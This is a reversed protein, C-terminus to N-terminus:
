VKIHKQKDCYITVAQRVFEAGGERIREYNIAFRADSVWMDALNRLFETDCKYFYQNIYAHYDGIAKQVGPNDPLLNAEKGVMRVAIKGGEVKIADKQEKSYSAWKRQSEKYQPTNGWRQRTEEEYKTEDFGEFLQKDDMKMDGKITAITNEITTILHALRKSRIQLATRHKELSGLLDFDPSSMILRIEDLPVELERFFLIQQLHLLSEQDYFRYGNSVTGAPNLLGIEDYFRLTRTTVGALEAIEKISYTM